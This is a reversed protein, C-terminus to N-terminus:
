PILLDTTYTVSVSTANSLDVGTVATATVVLPSANCTTLSRVNHMSYLETLAYQCATTSDAATTSSGSTYEAAVRAANQTGMLAYEYFGMDLAGSFMFFIWPAFLAVEMVAHGRKRLHRHSRVKNM